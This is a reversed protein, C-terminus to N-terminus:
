VITGAYVGKDLLYQYLAKSVMNYITSLQAPTSGVLAVFDAGSVVTDNTGRQLGEVWEGGVTNGYKCRIIILQQVLRVEHDIIKVQAYTKGPDADGPNYANTLQIPM